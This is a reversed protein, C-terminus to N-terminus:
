VIGATQRDASAVAELIVNTVLEPQSIMIVHSGEVETIRANARDAMSRLVDTGAAKDPTPIIAWSPLHKWAPAETRESFALEAIPRQTAAMVAAQEEPLDAAFADRFGALL